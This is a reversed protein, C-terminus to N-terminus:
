LYFRGLSLIMGAINTCALAVIAASTLPLQWRRGAGIGAAAVFLGFVGLAPFLYRGQAFAQGDFAFLQYGVVHIVFVTGLVALAPYVVTPWQTKLAARRVWVARLVFLMLVFALLKAVDYFGDSFRTDLSNFDALFGNFFIWFVPPTGLWYEDMSGISPLYWQWLYSLFGTLTVPRLATAGDTAAVSASGGAGFIAYVAVLLLFPLVGALVLTRLAPRRQESRWLALLLVFVIAPVIGLSTPKAAYALVVALMAGFVPWFSVGRRLVIAGCWLAAACTPVLLNDNSVGGGIHVVMPEFAVALGAVPAAWPHGPLLERAFLVIFVLGIALLLASWLRMLFLRDFINGAGGLKYAIVAPAYYLPTYVNAPTIGYPKDPGDALRDYEAMVQRETQASWPQQVFPNQIIGVATVTSLYVSSPFYSNGPSRDGDSGHEPLQGHALTEVYTFHAFEDPSNFAPTVLAWMAANVFAIAAIAAITRRRLHWGERGIGLLLAIGFALTLGSIVFLLWYTWAGVWSPRFLSARQFVKPAMALASREGAQLYEISLDDGLATRGLTTKQAPNASGNRVGPFAVRADGTVKWCLTLDEHDGAPLEFAIKAGDAFTKSQWGSLQKGAADRVKMSMSAADNGFTGVWVRVATSGATPTVGATCLPGNEATLPSLFTEPWVGNNGTARPEAPLLVVAAIVLALALVASIALTQLRRPSM